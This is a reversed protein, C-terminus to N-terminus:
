RKTSGTAMIQLIVQDTVDDVPINEPPLYDFTSASISRTHLILNYFVLYAFPEDTSKGGDPTWFYDFRYPFRDEIGVYIDIATPTHQPIVHKKGAVDETLKAVIEPKLRGRIKWVITASNKEQIQTKVPATNFDYRNKMERLMGALGGVGFLSGVETPIDDRGLKEIADVVRKIEIRELRKEGELSLYRYIYNYTNECVITLTNPSKVDRTDQTTQVKVELRFRAPVNGRPDDSKLENYTGYTNFEQNFLRINQRVSASIANAGEVSFLMEYYLPETADSSASLSSFGTQAFIHWSQMMFFLIVIFIRGSLGSNNFYVFNLTYRKKM